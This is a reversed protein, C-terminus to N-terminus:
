ISIGVPYLGEKSTSTSMESLRSTLETVKPPGKASLKAAQEEARDEDDCRVRCMEVFEAFMQTDTVTSRFAFEKKMENHVLDAQFYFEDEARNYLGYKKWNRINTSLDGCLRRHHVIIGSRLCQFARRERATLGRMLRTLNNSFTMDAPLGSPSFNSQQVSKTSSPMLRVLHYMSGRRPGEALIKQADHVAQELADDSLLGADSWDCSAAESIFRADEAADGVLLLNLNQHHEKDIREKSFCVGALLPAPSHLMEILDLPLLPIVTGCWRFPSMLSHLGMVICSAKVEDPCVVTLSRELLLLRLSKALVVPPLLSLLPIATWESPRVCPLQLSIGPFPGLYKEDNVSIIRRETTDEAPRESGQLFKVREEREAEGCDDPDPANEGQQLDFKHLREILQRRENSHKERRHTITASDFMSRRHAHRSRPSLVELSDDKDEPAVISDLCPLIHNHDGMAIIELLASYFGHLPQDGLICHCAQVKVQLWPFQRLVRHRFSQLYRRNTYLLFAKITMAARFMTRIIGTGDGDAIDREEPDDVNSLKGDLEAYTVHCLGHTAGGAADTFFLSHVKDNRCSATTPPTAGLKPGISFWVLQSPLCFRVMEDLFEGFDLEPSFSELVKADLAFSFAPRKDFVIAEARQALLM